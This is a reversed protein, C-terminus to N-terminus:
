GGTKSPVPAPKPKEKEAAGPASTGAEQEELPRTPDRLAIVQGKALGRQVCVFNDNQKGTVARTRKFHRGEKVFVYTVGAEETVCELPIYLARAVTDCIFEVDATMGPKLIKPNVESGAVTVEFNKRGPTSGSEWPLPETALSSIDKVTGHFVKNPVAELKIMCPIDVRVRPADAEGVQVKVLMSSLDPLQCITQRPRISDGEQLKRRGDPTWDKSIVVLGGAPANIVAHKV